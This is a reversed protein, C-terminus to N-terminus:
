RRLIYPRVRATAEQPLVNSKVGGRIMTVATTTRILANTQPSRALVREVVPGTWELNRLLVARPGRMVRAITDLFGRQARLRAPLPHDEVAKM